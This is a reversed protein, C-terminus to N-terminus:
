LEGLFRRGSVSVVYPLLVEADPLMACCNASTSVNSGQDRIWDLAESLGALINTKDLQIASDPDSYQESPPSQHRQGSPATQRSHFMVPAPSTNTLTAQRHYYQSSLSGFLKDDPERARDSSSPMRKQHLLEELSNYYEIKTTAGNGGGWGEEKAGQLHTHWVVAGGSQTREHGVSPVSSAWEVSWDVGGHSVHGDDSWEGVIASMGQDQKEEGLSREARLVGGKPLEPVSSTSFPEGLAFSSM